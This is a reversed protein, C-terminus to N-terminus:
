LKSLKLTEKVRLERRLIKGSASKPIVSLFEVGGRLYKFKSVGAGELFSHIDDATLSARSKVLFAKPVEGAETDPVGIVAVDTVYHKLLEAELEAPAVVQFGKYKILEKLRDIVYLLGHEDYYGIDGTHFWGDYDICQTTASPNKYYGKMVQPGKCCIEGEENPGLVKGSGLDVIKILTNATIVGVSALPIAGGFSATLPVAESLGWGQILSVNLKKQVEVSVGLPLPAAGCFVRILSSLDYKSNLPSNYMALVMPPVALLSTIKYREVLGFFSEVTFRKSIVMTTGKVLSKMVSMMGYIHFMPLVLYFIDNPTSLFNCLETISVMNYHTLMVGKPLGTTGSSYPLLFTDETPNIKNYVPYRANRILDKLSPYKKSSAAIFIHKISPVKKAVNTLELYNEEDCFVAIPQSHSFQKTMEAETYTPNCTTVLASCSAAAITIVPYELCNSCCMAVVDGPQIGLRVLESTCKMVDRRVDAFTYSRGSEGDI